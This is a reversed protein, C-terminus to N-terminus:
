VRYVKLHTSQHRKEVTCVRRRTTTFEDRTKERMVRAARVFFLRRKERRSAASSLFYGGFKREGGGLSKNMAREGTARGPRLGGDFDAFLESM